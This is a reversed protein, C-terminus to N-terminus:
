PYLWTDGLLEEGDLNSGGFLVLTGTAGDFAMSADARSTPITPPTMQAWTSGNWAWMDGLDVQGVGYGGFLLLQGSLPDMAMSARLRARPSSAPLLETWDSGTWEWTENTGNYTGNSTGGFLILQGSNSDWDMTAAYLPPPSTLPALQTWDTGNWAWTDSAMPTIGATASGGYLILQDTTSDYGLSAGHRAPPSSSPTEQLWNSGNWIWTASLSNGSSDIGGFLVLQGAEPDYALSAEALPPPSSSPALPTWSTGTWSWTDNTVTCGGGSGSCAGGGFLILQGTAPDWAESSTARPSPADAPASETWDGSPPIVPGFAASTAGAGVENTASMSFTYTDGNTLGTMTCTLPGTTWACAQGGNAPTTSDTAVVTYGTVPSGGDSSPATWTVTASANAPTVTVLTPAGPVTVPTVPNSPVSIAGVGVANTAQVTFTYSDGDTLGTMTIPSTLGSATQGGNAPTTTDTAVVTYGTITSGEDFPATFTISASQAGATASVATPADPVTAPVVSASPVSPAGLGVSNTAQVTFTYSDGDTLGTVTIPSTFGSAAQGGNAPTTTDTAVVTYGTVPSGGDSSPATWTVTASANAPTVTVLTPAGPVTVPTVPISPVSIAGAGVTSTAQVTFTYSDGDTLGTVTIPSAFGSATQGGNAPTTSDTAVVTYGTVPSGGDSSPGTWSVTASANAPTVTVLTPAGPVTVPIVPSSPVSPAGAGAANTASMSFTYTDGNTLGTVTCTLPGTTWACAQGGNAPTTTDTAVVTYGTVPSGGDSSPATWTVTASANAPTVTVLTPAGPVTVPTVPISPVSIAGAGVTSTAQVTFTYSDGDTLGTVTIPSAFGSATQGGNAPTTSDTAVVTYGTVPSGGDSSPGTWSVTASADAPTVTVLTPAGPVTVPIVPSSPVSIAGVGVANTAQVTFTYSDGDTLGTVVCKLPGTMWTCAQGGNAPITTDTAVVTYGTITSGEDFPATFTISASQAGATASVATPVDPVTTPIVSTSPVSPAGQGVSNTARVTFTYPDGNVLGDVVQATATSAYSITSQAVGRIYPTVVYGTVASGGDNAPASWRLSIRRNGAVATLGPPIGPVMVPTVVVPLVTTTTSTPISSPSTAAPPTPGHTAASSAPAPTAVSPGPDGMTTTTTSQAPPSTSTAAGKAQDGDRSTSALAPATAAAVPSNHPGTHAAALVTAVGIGTAVVLGAVFHGALTMFRGASQMVNLQSLDALSALPAGVVSRKSLSAELFAHVVMPDFHKGACDALEQRAAETTMAKKYSRVATMTEFCDAVAVIRGGLSIEEGALGRPYGTGDFKEHHEPISRAWPGLWEALPAALRAGEDPHRRLIALEQDDPKGPKNLVEGPVSLKGIDHLLASWRLRDKDAQPIKLEEAIVDTLARVRESHGRTLRDHRSLSAALGLIREAAVVPEDHRGTERDHALQRELSKTGGARRAVAIRSPARDPFVLTMRLLATLPLARRALRRAGFYVLWPTVLIFMWWVWLVPGGSPRHVNHVIVFSVVIAVVIPILIITGGVIM